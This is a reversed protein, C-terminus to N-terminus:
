LSKLLIKVVATNNTTNITIKEVFRGIFITDESNLWDIFAYCSIARSVFKEGECICAGIYQHSNDDIIEAIYYAHESKILPLDLISNAVVDLPMVVGKIIMYPEKGLEWLINNMMKNLKYGTRSETQNASNKNIIKLIKAVSRHDISVIEVDIPKM